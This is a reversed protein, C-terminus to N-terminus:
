RNKQIKQYLLLSTYWHKTEEFPMNYKECLVKVEQETFGTFESYERTDIMSIETFMNLASHVGYKKIPLIGTMYVLAIYSKDKLLYRLFDLYKKQAQEDHKHERFICDWEDIIFIFQVGKDEFVDELVAILDNRDVTNKFEKNLEYLLRRSMNAIVEEITDARSFFDVMNIHIVNYRNLHKKFSEAKAIKFESFLEESNCGRSYYAVLMNATMTKGFRRPRSVCLFRQETNVIKNTHKILETKDVYIESNVAQRFKINDPNLYIGMKDNRKSKAIVKKCVLCESATNKM